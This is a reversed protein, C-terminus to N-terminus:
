CVNKGNSIVSSHFKKKKSTESSIAKPTPGWFAATDDDACFECWLQVSRSHLSRDFDKCCDLPWLLPFCLCIDSAQFLVPTARFPVMQPHMVINSSLNLVGAKYLARGRANMDSSATITPGLTARWTVQMSRRASWLVDVNSLSTLAGSM